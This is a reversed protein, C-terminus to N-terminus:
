NQAGLNILPAAGDPVVITSGAKGIADIWRQQLVAPSLSKTLLDNAKAQGDAEAIAAKAKAEAEVVQAQASIETARLSAEAKAMEQQAVEVAKISEEVDATFTVNQLNVVTVQIGYSNLEENLRKHMTEQAEGRKEGRFEVPSYATPVSRVVSLIKQSVVQETFREQSRYQRFLEGVADGELSYVISLDFEAQAGGKVPATVSSGNVRGGDFTPSKDSTGVYNASQSFLDWRSLKQWPAKAAFGPEANEGAVTGGLNIIVSAQGVSQTYLVSIFFMVLAVVAFPVPVWKPFNISDEYDRYQQHYEKRAREYDDSGGYGREFDNRNPAVPETIKRVKHIFVAAGVAILALVIGIIFWIM